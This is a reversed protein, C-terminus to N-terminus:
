AADAARRMRELEEEVLSEDLKRFLPRPELLAQGPALQSPEWRGAWSGYDGTLVVHAAGGEERVERLELPGSLLGEHGLLEHVVQSSFPLFPALLTKLSDVARLCVYLVTAARARDNTVLAWPAEDNVYQNVRRALQMAEGLAAKFRADDVLEGVTAFGGDIEALLAADRDLLEGPEPVAGFTRHAITLTRNALNGWTAVLEDNNRRVFESWTFDTDQTEPGAATLYYRLPDPDYRDLFDRVLIGVSRSASFQRGEMTLFESAVLNYPLQLAGRGAGVEGRDGYGLLISPWIVTHFVINDKGMFYYHRADGNQWWDRWADPTGRNQAWEVAASLYGIVADFWVYIRKNTEEEYGEVPIPVGWDLDRTIPREKLDGVLALSFNRVNSRWHKQAEIWTRLREAFAPLDLFLHKTERFEPTSGDIRSRPEILDTPDLQNGCNDCQDGRAAAYGCIPCTGEIYRDPLTHGTTASFAGLATRELVYGEDYLTRFLDRVVRYHNRTTTRTFCDYAIGLDRLDDRIRASYDDAAERPSRGERDATVMVPTGHEDTGSIMLVHDGKLRHYRAFIDAPVAFGAVHGIHRPASAYPWAPAVLIRQPTDPM